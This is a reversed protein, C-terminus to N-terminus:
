FRSDADDDDEKHKDLDENAQTPRNQIGTSNGGSGMSDNDDKDDFIGSVSIRKIAYVFIYAAIALRALGLLLQPYMVLLTAAAIAVAGQLAPNLRDWMLESMSIIRHAADGLFKM